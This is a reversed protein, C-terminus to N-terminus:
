VTKKRSAKVLQSFFSQDIYDRITELREAYADKQMNNKEEEFKLVLDKILVPVLHIKHKDFSM